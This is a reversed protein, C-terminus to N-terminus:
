FQGLEAWTQTTKEPPYRVITATSLLWRSDETFEEPSLEFLLPCLAKARASNLGVAQILFPYPLPSWLGAEASCQPVGLCCYCDCVHVVTTAFQFSERRQLRLRSGPHAPLFSQLTVSIAVFFCLRTMFTGMVSACVVGGYSHRPNGFLLKGVSSVWVNEVPFSVLFSPPSTM